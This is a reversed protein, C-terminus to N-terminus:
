RFGEKSVLHGWREGRRIMGILSQSVGYKAATKSQSGKSALIEMVQETTLKAYSTEGHAHRRKDVADRTNDKFTGLFLHSPNCCPPNDCSHCVLMSPDPEAGGLYAIGYSLRTARVLGKKRGRWLVGYGHEKKAGLWEWCADPDNPKVVFDWFREHLTRGRPQPRRKRTTGNDPM